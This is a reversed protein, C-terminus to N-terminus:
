LDVHGAQRARRNSFGEAGGAGAGGWTSRATTAKRSWRILWEVDACSERATWDGRAALSSDGREEGGGGGGRGSGGAWVAFEGGGLGGGRGGGGDGGGM